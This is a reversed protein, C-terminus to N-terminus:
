REPSKQIVAQLFQLGLFGALAIVLAVPWLRWITSNRLPLQLGEVLAVVFIAFLIMLLLMCGTSAM